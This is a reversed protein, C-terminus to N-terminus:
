VGKKIIKGSSLIDASLIYTYQKQKICVNKLSVIFWANNKAIIKTYM